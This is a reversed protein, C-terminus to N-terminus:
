KKVSVNLVFNIDLNFTIEIKQKNKIMLEIEDFKFENLFNNDRVLKNEGEYVKVVNNKFTTLNTKKCPINSNRPIFVVMEGNEGEIGLSFPIVDLVILKEISENKVNTIVAGLIAAGNACSEKYNIFKNPIKGDFFEQVM